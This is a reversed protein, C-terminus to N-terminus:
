HDESPKSLKGPTDVVTTIYTEPDFLQAAISTTYRHVQGAFVTHLALLTILGGIAVFSMTAPPIVTVTEARPEISQAKWFLVSGARAFGVISILSSGLVIAWTWVM